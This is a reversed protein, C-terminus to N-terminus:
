FSCSKIATSLEIHACGDKAVAVEAGEDEADHKGRDQVRRACRLPQLNECLVPATTILLMPMPVPSFM